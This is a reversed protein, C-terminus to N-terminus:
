EYWKAGALSDTIMARCFRDPLEPFMKKLMAAAKRRTIQRDQIMGALELSRAETERTLFIVPEKRHRFFANVTDMVAASEAESLMNKRKEEPLNWPWIERDEKELWFMEYPNALFYSVMAEGPIRVTRDGYYVDASSRSSIRTGTIRWEEAIRVKEEETDM